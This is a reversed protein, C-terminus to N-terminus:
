PAVEAVILWERALWSRGVVVRLTSPICLMNSWGRRGYANPHYIPEGGRTAYRTPHGDRAPAGDGEVVVVPAPHSPRLGVYRRLAGRIAPTM